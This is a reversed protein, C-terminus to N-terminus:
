LEEGMAEAWVANQIQDSLDDDIISSLDDGVSEFWEIAERVGPHHKDFCEEAAEETDHYFSPPDTVDPDHCLSNVKSSAMHLSIAYCSRKAVPDEFFTKRLFPARVIGLITTAHEIAGM